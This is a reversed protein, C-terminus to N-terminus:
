TARVELWVEDVYSLVLPDQPIGHILMSPAYSVGYKANFYNNFTQNYTANSLITSDLPRFGRRFAQEISSNLGLFELYLRAVNKSHNDVWPANLIAFPHSNLFLGEQPYIAVAKKQLNPDRNLDIIINEYVYFVDYDNKAKEALYGTSTGYYDCEKEIDRLWNALNDNIYSSDTLNAVTLRSANYYANTTYNFYAAIEMMVGTYGSNSQRPDTHALRLNGPQIAFQRLDEFGKMTTYLTNNWTGIITPSYIFSRVDSYNIINPITANCVSLQLESAPTWIMPKIEGTTLAVVMELSGMARFNVSITRNTQKYYWEKFPVVLDEIWGKKESSYIMTLIDDSSTGVSLMFGIQYGIMFGFVLCVLLITRSKRQIRQFKSVM